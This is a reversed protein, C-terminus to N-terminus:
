TLHLQKGAKQFDKKTKTKKLRSLMEPFLVDRTTNECPGRGICIGMTISGLFHSAFWHVSQPSVTESNIEWTYRLWRHPGPWKRWKVRSFFTTTQSRYTVLPGFSFLSSLSLGLNEPQLVMAKVHGRLQSREQRGKQCCCLAGVWGSNKHVSHPQYSSQLFGALM